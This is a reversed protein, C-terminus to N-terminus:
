AEEYSDFLSRVRLAAAAQEDLWGTPVPCTVRAERGAPLDFYNDSFVVDAGDLTLEVFRALSSATARIELRNEGDQVVPAVRLGIGPDRLELHKDPVLPVCALSRRTGDHWLEAVVVLGRRTGPTVGPGLDHLGALSTATPLAVVRDVAGDLVEGALTELTWRAEGEWADTSDNTVHLGMRDVQDDISLLVPAYFRRSAYHLAKWRGYYDISSWSAM